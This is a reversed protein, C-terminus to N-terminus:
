EPPTGRKASWNGHPPQGGSQDYSLWTGRLQQGDPSLFGELEMYRGLKSDIRIVRVKRGVLTGQLSGTWGGELEYTGTVVTGTQSIRFVGRQNSPRWPIPRCRSSLSGTRGLHLVTRPLTFLRSCFFCSAAVRVDVLGEVDDLLLDFLIVRRLVDDYRHLSSDQRYSDPEQWCHRERRTFGRLLRAM